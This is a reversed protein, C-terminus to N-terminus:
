LNFLQVSSVSSFQVTPNAPIAEVSIELIGPACLARPSAGWPAGLRLCRRPLVDRSQSRPSKRRPQEFRPGSSLSGHIRQKQPLIWSGQIRKKQTSCLNKAGRSCLAQAASSHALSIRRLDIKKHLFLAPSTPPSTAPSAAPSTMSRADIHM